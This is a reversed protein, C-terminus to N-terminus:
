LYKFYVWGVISLEVGYMFLVVDREYVRGKVRNLVVIALHVMHFMSKCPIDLSGDANVKAFAEENFRGRAQLIFDLAYPIFLVV